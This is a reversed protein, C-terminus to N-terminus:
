RRWAARVGAFVGVATAASSVLLVEGANALMSLGTMISSSVGFGLGTGVGAGIITGAMGCALVATLVAKSLSGRTAGISQLNAVAQASRAFLDATISWTAVTVSIFMLVLLALQGATGLLQMGVIANATISATLTAVLLFSTRTMKLSRTVLPDGRLSFQSKM